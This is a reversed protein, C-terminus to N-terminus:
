RPCAPLPKGYEFEAWGHHGGDSIRVSYTVGEALAQAPHKNDWDKIREGYRILRRVPRDTLRKDELSDYVLDSAWVPVPPSDFDPEGQQRLWISDPRPHYDSFLGKIPAIAFAVTEGSQCPTVGLRELSCGGLPAIALVILASARSRM